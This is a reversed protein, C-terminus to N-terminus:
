TMRLPLPQRGNAASTHASVVTTRRQLLRREAPIPIVGVQVLALWNHCTNQVAAVFRALTVLSLARQGQSNCLAAGELARELRAIIRRRVAALFQCFPM